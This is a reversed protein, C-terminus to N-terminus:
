VKNENVHGTVLWRESEVHWFLIVLKGKVDECVWFRKEFGSTDHESQASTNLRPQQKTAARMQKIGRGEWERRQEYSKIAFIKPFAFAVAEWSRKRPRSARVDTPQEKEKEEVCDGEQVAAMESSIGPGQTPSHIVLGHCEQVVASHLPSDDSDAMLCVVMVDGDDAAHVRKCTIAFLRSLSSIDGDDNADLWDITKFINSSSQSSSSIPFMDLPQPPHVPKLSRETNSGRPLLYTPLTKSAEADYANKFDGFLREYLPQYKGM